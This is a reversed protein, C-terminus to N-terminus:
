QGNCIKNPACTTVIWPDGLDLVSAVGRGFGMVSISFLRRAFFTMEILPCEQDIFYFLYRSWYLTPNTLLKVDFRAQCVLKIFILSEWRTSGDCIEGILILSRIFSKHQLSIVSPITFALM